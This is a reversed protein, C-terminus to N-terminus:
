MGHFIELRRLLTKIMGGHENTADICNLIFEDDMIQEVIDNPKTDEAFPVTVHGYEPISQNIMNFDDINDNRTKSWHCCCDADDDSSIGEPDYVNSSDSDYDVESADEDSPFIDNGSEDDESSNELEM